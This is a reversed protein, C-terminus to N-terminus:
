ARVFRLAHWEYEPPRGDCWVEAQDDCYYLTRAHEECQRSLPVDPHEGNSEPHMCQALMIPGGPTDVSWFVSPEAYDAQTAQDYM